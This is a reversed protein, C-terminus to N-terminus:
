GKLSKYEELVKSLLRKKTQRGRIMIVEGSSIKNVNRLFDKDFESLPPAPKGDVLFYKEYYEVTDINFDM